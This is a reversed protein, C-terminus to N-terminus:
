YAIYVNDIMYITTFLCIKLARIKSMVVYSLLLCVMNSQSDMVEEGGKGDTTGKMYAHMIM